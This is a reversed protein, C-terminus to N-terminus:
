KAAQALEKVPGAESIAKFDAELYSTADLIAGLHQVRVYGAEDIVITNPVGSVVFKEWLDQNAKAIRLTNLQRERVVAELEKDEKPMIVVAAVVVEPHKTQFDQLPRLEARCPGCWVAWFNLVVKKRLLLANNLREGNLTVLDFDPATRRFVKAVYNSDKSHQTLTAEIKRQLDQKSGLKERSWLSELAANHKLDESSPRIVAELYAQLAAQTNGTEELAKGLLYYSSGSTLSNKLPELTAVVGQFKGQRLLIDARMEAIRLKMEKRTSEVYHLRARKNQPNADVLRESEDLLILAEPLKQNAQVYIGAMNLPLFPDEPDKSRLQQYLKERESLDSLTWFLKQRAFDAAQSRPYKEVLERLLAIRKGKDKEKSARAQLVFARPNDDPYKVEISKVLSETTESPIWDQYAVFNLADILGFGDGSHDSIFKRIESVLAARTEPTNGHLKLKYKWLTSVLNAGRSPPRIYADLVDVAKAYNVPRDIGHVQLTAAYSEAEYRVSQEARQGYVDCFLVEFYKGENMDVRKTQSDEVWYVAYQPFWDFQERLAVTASWVGDDRRTFPLTQDEDPGSGNDFVMHLVLSTPEKIAAGKGMPFYLVRIEKTVPAPALYGTVPCAPDTLSVWYVPGGQYGDTEAPQQAAFCLTSATALLFMAFSHCRM